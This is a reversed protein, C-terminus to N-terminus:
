FYYIIRRIVKLGPFAFLFNIVGAGLSAYIATNTSVGAQLFLDSSYYM